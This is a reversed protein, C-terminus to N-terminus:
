GPPTQVCVQDSLSSAGAANYAYLVVCYQSDPVLGILTFSTADQALIAIQHHDTADQLVYGTAGIAPQWDVRVRTGDLAVARVGQPTAPPSLRAAPAPTPTATAVATPVSPPAPPALSSFTLVMGDSSFAWAGQGPLLVTTSVYSNGAPNFTFLLDAGPSVSVPENAPNGILVYQGAPLQLSQPLRATGALRIFTTQPFYAWYGYGAHVADTAANARYRTDGAQLTYLPGVAGSFVTGEPGAVLNWGAPYSVVGATQARTRGALAVILTAVVAVAVVARM